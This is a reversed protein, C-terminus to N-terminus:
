SRRRGYSAARTGGPHGRRRPDWVLPAPVARPYSPPRTSEPRAYRPLRPPRLPGFNYSAARGEMLVRDLTRNPSSEAAHVPFGRIVLGAADVLDWQRRDQHVSLMAEILLDLGRDFVVTGDEVLPSWASARM